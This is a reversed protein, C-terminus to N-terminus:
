KDKTLKIIIIINTEKITSKNIKLKGREESRLLDSRM